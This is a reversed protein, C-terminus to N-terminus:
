RKPYKLNAVAVGEHELLKVKRDLGGSYGTLQRNQGLVRHCPVLIVLPNRGIAGGVAQSSMSKQGLRKACKVAIDRYTTTQGYPIQSLESWVVKAFESGTTRTRLVCVDPELGAFYDTLWDKTRSLLENNADLHATQEIKSLLEKTLFDIGTLNEGDSRLLLTGLPSDTLSYLDM